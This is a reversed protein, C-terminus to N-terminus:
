IMRSRKFFIVEKETISGGFYCGKYYPDMCSTNINKNLLRYDKDRYKSLICNINWGKELIIQSMPIEKEYIVRNIDDSENLHKENSFFFQEDRLYLFAEKDLIFFMSQVHTLIRNQSELMNISTGVLKVDKGTKFLELFKEM